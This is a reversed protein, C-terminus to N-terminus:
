EKTNVTREEDSLASLIMGIGLVAWFIPAVSVASDNFFGTGLYSIVALLCGILWHERSSYREQRRVSRIAHVVFIAFSLMLALTAVVGENIMWQLYMNHPKDVIMLINETLIAKALYDGHPFVALYNDPGYGLILTNKILPISRSWLYGRGSGLREKGEFGWYPAQVMDCRQYSLNSVPYSEGSPEKAVLFAIKKQHLITIVIKNVEQNMEAKLAIDDYPGKLLAYGMDKDFKKLLSNGQADVIRFDGQKTLVDIDGDLTSLRIVDREPFQVDYIYAGYTPDHVYEANSTVLKKAGEFIDQVEYLLKGGTFFNGALALFILWAGLGLSLTQHRLLLPSYYYLAILVALFVGVMGAQSRSFFLIGIHSLFLVGTMMRIIKNERADMTWAFFLPIMLACYSGTNNPNYFTLSWFTRHDQTFSVTMNPLLTFQKLWSDFLFDRGMLHGISLFSIVIGLFLFAGKLYRLMSEKLVFIAYVSILLYSLLIWLGEYREPSGNYALDPYASSVASIITFLSFIAFGLLFWKTRRVRRLIQDRRTIFLFVLGILLAIDLLLILRAKSYNYNDYFSRMGWFRFVEDSVQVEQTYILLPVIVIILILPIIAVQDWKKRKALAEGTQMVDVSIDPGRENDQIEKTPHDAQRDDDSWGDGVNESTPEKPYEMTNEEM